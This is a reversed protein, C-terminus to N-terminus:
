GVVPRWRDALAAIAVSIGAIRFALRPALVTVIVAAASLLLMFSVGYVGLVPAWGALPSDIQGYGLAM